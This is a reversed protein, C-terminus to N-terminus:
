RMHRGGYSGGRIGGSREAVGIAKGMRSAYMFAGLADDGLAAPVKGAPGRNLMAAANNPAGGDAGGLSASLSPKGHWQPASFSVPQDEPMSGLQLVRNNPNRAGLKTSGNEVAQQLMMMDFTQQRGQQPNVPASLPVPRVPASNPPRGLLPAGALPKMANPANPRVHDHSVGNTKSFRPMTFWSPLAPPATRMRSPPPRYSTPLGGLWAHVTPAVANPDAGWLRALLEVVREADGGCLRYLAFLDEM